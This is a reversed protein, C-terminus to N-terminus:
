VMKKFILCVHNYEQETVGYIKSIESPSKGAAVLQAISMKKMRKLQDAKSEAGLYETLIRELPSGGQIWIDLTKEVRLYHKYEILLLYAEERATIAMRMDRANIDIIHPLNAGVLPGWHDFYTRLTDSSKVTPMLPKLMKAFNIIRNQIEIDLDLFSITEGHAAVMPALYFFLAFVLAHFKSM